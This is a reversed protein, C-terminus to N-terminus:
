PSSPPDVCGPPPGHNGKSWNASLFTVLAHCHFLLPPVTLIPIVRYSEEEECQHELILKQHKSVTIM